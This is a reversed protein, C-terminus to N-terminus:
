DQASGASAEKGGAPGAIGVEGALSAIRADLDEDTMDTFAIQHEHREAFMGLHRGLLELGKNAVNGQYRYEGTSLGESDTVPTAQMSREVNAVLRTIVWDQDIGTRVSRMALLERIRAMIGPKNLLKYATNDACKASYGARIAAAKGNLDILYEQCFREQRAAGERTAAM